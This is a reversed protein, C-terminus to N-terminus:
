IQILGSGEVPRCVHLTARLKAPRYYGDIMTRRLAPVADTRALIMICGGLGAGALQAGFVGEVTNALDVMRDIQPTSCGYSGPVRHLQAAAVRAPDESHLDAIRDSLYRDTPSADFQGRRLRPTPTKRRSRSSPPRRDLGKAVRDGDHSINMLEGFGVLDGRALLEICM